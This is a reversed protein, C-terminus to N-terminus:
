VRAEMKAPILIVTMVQFSVRRLYLFGSFELYFLIDLVENSACM